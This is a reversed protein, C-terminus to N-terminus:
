HPILDRSFIFYIHETVCNSYKSLKVVDFVKCYIALAKGLRSTNIAPPFKKLSSLSKSERLGKVFNSVRLMIFPM